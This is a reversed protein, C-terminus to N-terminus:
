SLAMAFSARGTTKTTWWSSPGTFCASTTLANSTTPMTDTGTRSSAKVQEGNWRTAQYGSWATAVAAFALLVTAVLETRDSM